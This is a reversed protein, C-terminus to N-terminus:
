HYVEVVVVEQRRGWAKSGEDAVDVWGEEPDYLGDSVMIEAPYDQSAKSLGIVLMDDPFKSLAQCMEKVTM